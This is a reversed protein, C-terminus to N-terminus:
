MEYLRAPTCGVPVGSGASVADAHRHAAREDHLRSAVVM